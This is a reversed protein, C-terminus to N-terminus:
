ISLRGSSDWIFSRADKKKIKGEKEAKILNFLDYTTMLLNSDRSADEKQSKTFAEPRDKAPKNISCNAVFIGSIKTNNLEKMRRSVYKVVAGCDSDSVTGRDKGKVEILRMPTKGLDFRKCKGFIWLDEEKQRSSDKEAWYKDVDIVEFELYSLCELVTQKLEENKSILLRNLQAQESDAVAQINAQIEKTQKDFKEQEEQKKFYLEQLAPMHYEPSELWKHRPDNFLYPSLKPLLDCLLLSTVNGFDSFYPLFLYFGKRERIRAAIAGPSRNLSEAIVEVNTPFESNSTISGHPPILLTACSINHSHRSFVENIISDGVLNCQTPNDVIGCVQISSPIEVVNEVHFQKCQGLFCVVVGGERVMEMFAHGNGYHVSNADNNSQGVAYFVIGKEDGPRITLTKGSKWNTTWQKIQIDLIEKEIIQVQDEPYDIFTVSVM